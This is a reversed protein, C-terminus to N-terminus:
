FGNFKRREAADRALGIYATKKVLFLKSSVFIRETTGELGGAGRGTRRARKREGTTRQESHPNREGWGGGELQGKGREKNAAATRSQGKARTDM